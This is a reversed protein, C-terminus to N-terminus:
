KLRGRLRALEVENINPPSKAALEALYRQRLEAARQQRLAQVLADRVEALPVAAAPRKELLRIFHLGQGTKLPGAVDGVKMTALATRVEPLLRAEPLVGLDGGKAASDAHESYSRALAAFDGGALKGQVEVIKRLAATLQEPSAGDPASVFLQALRYESAAAARQRAAEYAQKIEADSPFSAPVQAQRELWLRVVVDDRLQEVDATVAPDREFGAKRAEALVLRRVLESRVLQELSAGDGTLPGRSSEPLSTVLRRVDGDTLEVAGAKGILAPAATEAHAVASGLGTLPAAALALLLLARVARSPRDAIMHTGEVDVPGGIM